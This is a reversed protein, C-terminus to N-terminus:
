KVQSALCLQLVIEDIGCRSIDADQWEANKETHRCERVVAAGTPYTFFDRCIDPCTQTQNSGAKTQTWNYTISSGLYLPVSLETACTDNGLTLESIPSSYVGTGANNVAAVEILYNTSPTLESILCTRKGSDASIIIANRDEVVGKYVGYQM